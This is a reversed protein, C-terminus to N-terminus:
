DSAKFTWPKMFPLMEEEWGDDQFLEQGRAAGLHSSSCALRQESLRTSWRPPPPPPLRRLVACWLRMENGCRKVSSGRSPPINVNWGGVKFREHRRSQCRGLRVRVGLGAGQVCNNWISTHHQLSAPISHLEEPFLPSNQPFNGEVDWRM